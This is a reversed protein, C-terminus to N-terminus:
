SYTWSLDIVEEILRIMKMTNFLEKEDLKYSPIDPPPTMRM